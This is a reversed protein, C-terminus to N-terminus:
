DLTRVVETIKLEKMLELAQKLKEENGTTDAEHLFKGIKEIQERLQAFPQDYSPVKTKPQVFYHRHLFKKYIERMNHLAEKGRYEELRIARQIEETLRHFHFIKLISYIKVIEKNIHQVNDPSSQGQLKQIAEIKSLLITCYTKFPEMSGFPDEKDGKRKTLLRSIRELMISLRKENTNRIEWSGWQEIEQTIKELVEEHDSISGKVILQQPTVERIEQRIAGSRKGLRRKAGWIWASVAQKNARGLKDKGLMAKELHNRAIFTDKSTKREIAEYIEFLSEWIKRRDESTKLDYTDFLKILNNLRNVQQQIEEHSSSLKVTTHHLSRLLPYISDFTQAKYTLDQDKYEMRSLVLIHGSCPLLKGGEDRVDGIIIMRHPPKGYGREEGQKDMRTITHEFLYSSAFIQKILPMIETKKKLKEIRSLKKNRLSEGTIAEYLSDSILEPDIIVLSVAVDRVMDFSMHETIQYDCPQTFLEQVRKQVSDPGSKLLDRRRLVDTSGKVPRLHPIQLPKEPNSFPSSVVAIRQQFLCQLLIRQYDQGEQEEKTNFTNKQRKLGLQKRLPRFRKQLEDFYNQYEKPCRGDALPHQEYLDHEMWLIDEQIKKLKDAEKNYGSDVDRMQWAFDKEMEIRAQEQSIHPLSSLINKM